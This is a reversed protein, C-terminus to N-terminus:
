QRQLMDLLDQASELIKSYAAEAEAIIRDYEKSVAMKKSLSANIGDLRCM